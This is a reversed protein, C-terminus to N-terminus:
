HSAESFGEVEDESSGLGFVRVAVRESVRVANRVSVGV